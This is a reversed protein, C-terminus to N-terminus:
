DDVSGSGGSKFRVGKENGASPTNIRMYIRIPNRNELRRWRIVIWATALVALLALLIVLGSGEVRLSNGDPSTELVLRATSGLLNDMPGSEQRWVHM